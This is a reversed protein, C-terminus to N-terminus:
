EEERNHPCPESTRWHRVCVDKSSNDVYTFVESEFTAESGCEFQVVLETEKPHVVPSEVASADCAPCSWPESDRGQTYVNKEDSDPVHTHAENM